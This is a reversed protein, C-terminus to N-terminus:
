PRQPFVGDLCIIFNLALFPQMNNHAQSSGNAGLALPSMKTDPTPNFLDIPTVGQRSVESWQAWNNGQPASTSGNVAYGMPTHTHAPMETPLLTVTASGGSEGMYRETLGPGAGVGIPVSAQLNPLAFNTTGNGGYQVGLLSFLATSRQIPLLQGNCFAWGKPEYNGAFIRIEGLYADSM